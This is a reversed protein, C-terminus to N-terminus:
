INQQPKEPYANDDNTGNLHEIKEQAMRWTRRASEEDPVNDNEEAADIIMQIKEQDDLDFALKILSDLYDEESYVSQRKENRM